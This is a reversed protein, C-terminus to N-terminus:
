EEISTELVYGKDNGILVSVKKGETVGSILMSQESKKLLHAEEIVTKKRKRLGERKEKIVVRPFEKIDYYILEDSARVLRSDYWTVETGGEGIVGKTGTGYLGSRVMKLKTAKGEDIIARFFATARTRALSYTTTEPGRPAEASM